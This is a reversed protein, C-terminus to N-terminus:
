RTSIIRSLTPMEICQGPIALTSKLWETAQENRLKSPLTYLTNTYIDQKEPVWLKLNCLSLVPRGCNRGFFMM